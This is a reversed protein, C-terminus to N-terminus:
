YARRFIIHVWNSVQQGSGLARSNNTRQENGNKVCPDYWDIAFWKGPSIAVTLRYVLWCDVAKCLLIFQALWLGEKPRIQIPSMFFAISLSLLVHPWGSLSSGSCLIEAMHPGLWMPVVPSLLLSGPSFGGAESATLAQSRLAGLDGQGYDFHSNQSEVATYSIVGFCWVALWKNQKYIQLKPLTQCSGNMKARHCRPDERPHSRTWIVSSAGWIWIM